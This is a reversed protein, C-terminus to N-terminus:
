MRLYLSCTVFLSFKAFNPCTAKSIHSCVSLCASWLVKRVQRPRLLSSSRIVTCSPMVVRPTSASDDGACCDRADSPRTSDGLHLEVTRCRQRTGLTRRGWASSADARRRWRQRRRRRQSLSSRPKTRNGGWTLLRSDHQRDENIKYMWRTRTNLSKAGCELVRWKSDVMKAVNKEGTVPFKSM